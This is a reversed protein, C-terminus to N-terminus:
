RGESLPQVLTAQRTQAFSATVQVMAFVDELVAPALEEAHNQIKEAIGILHKLADHLKVINEQTQILPLSVIMELLRDEKFRLRSGRTTGRSQAEIEKWISPRSFYKLLFEPSVIDKRKVIFCPFEGSVFCGDLDETVLGFSGRWGFLRNYVFDHTHVQYLREAKIESGKKEYKIYLGNGFSHMGLIKYSREPVVQVDRWVPDLLESLPWEEWSMHQSKLRALAEDSLTTRLDKLLHQTEISGQAIEELTHMIPLRVSKEKRNPNMAVLDHNRSIVEDISVLWSNKSIERTQWKNWCDVLDVDKIPNTKTYNTDEPPTLEYYWIQKTAKTRDFFMLNAKPGPGVSTVNAFTGSPLSVITHVNFNELLERKVVAFADSGSLVGEPVVIACRGNPKLKKMVYQLALLETAQSQVPFNQQIQKNEQGGFPPNTMVVDFRHSEPMNRINEELTNKRVVRPTLMGHLVCNMVGILYPLSKKEQGHFSEQQLREYEQITLQKSTEIHKFSEVLFGCSGCFPDLLRENSKPNVIEVMLRVIPRPTYFEGAVGGEKGMKLLLEEYVQSVVHSDDASNFDIEDVISIVDKLNFGSKMLNGSSERFITSIMDREPSGSLSTLYPILEDDIFKVLEEARWDKKAWSSWQYRKDIIQNSVRGAFEAEAKLREEIAEFIKLFILWSLQEMYQLLGSTGDDRRMIDCAHWLDSALDRRNM